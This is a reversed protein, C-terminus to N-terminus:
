PWHLSALEAVKVRNAFPSKSEFELEHIGLGHSRRKERVAPVESLLVSLACCWGFLKRGCVRGNCGDVGEMVRM